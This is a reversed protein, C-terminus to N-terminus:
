ATKVEKEAKDVMEEARGLFYGKQFTSMKSICELIKQVIELDNNVKEM